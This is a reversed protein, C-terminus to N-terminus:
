LTPTAQEWEIQKELNTQGIRSLEISVLVAWKATAETHGYKDVIRRWIREADDRENGTLEYLEHLRAIEEDKAAIM